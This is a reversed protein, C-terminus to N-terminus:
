GAFSEVLDPSLVTGWEKNLDHWALLKANLRANEMRALALEHSREKLKEQTLVLEANLQDYRSYAQLTDDRLYELAQENLYTYEVLKDNILGEVKHPLFTQGKTNKQIALSEQKSVWMKYNSTNIVIALIFDNFFKSYYGYVIYDAQIKYLESPAGSAENFETITADLYALPSVRRNREPVCRRFREQVTFPVTAGHQKGVLDNSKPVVKIVKDIGYRTDLWSFNKNGDLTTDICEFDGFIEPYIIRKAAEHAENSFDQNEQQYRTKAM